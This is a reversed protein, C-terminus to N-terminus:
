NGPEMFKARLIETAAPTSLFKLFAADAEKHKSAPSIGGQFKLFNQVAAPFSVVQVGPVAHLEAPLQVAMDAEGKAVYEATAGSPIAIAKGKVQDAIGWQDLLKAFYIGSQGTTTFAIKKAGLLATKFEDPTSVDPASTGAKFAIGLGSKALPVVNSEIKGAEILQGTVPPLVIAVDFEAGQTIKDKVQNATAFTITLKNNTSQEYIPKIDTLAAQMGTSSYVVFEASRAPAIWAALVLAGAILSAFRQTM